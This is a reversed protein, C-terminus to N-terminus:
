GGECYCGFVDPFLFLVTNDPEVIIFDQVDIETERCFSEVVGLPASGKIEYFTESVLARRVDNTKMSNTLL